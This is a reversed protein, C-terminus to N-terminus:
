KEFKEINFFIDQFDELIMQKEQENLEKLKTQYNELFVVFIAVDTEPAKEL